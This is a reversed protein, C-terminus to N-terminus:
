IFNDLTNRVIIISDTNFFNIKKCKVKVFSIIKKFLKFHKIIM